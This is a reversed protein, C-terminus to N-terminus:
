VVGEVWQAQPKVFSKVVKVPAGDEAMLRYSGAAAPVVFTEAFHFRQRVGGAEVLVSKGEVLSMVQCSDGTRVEVATSFEYREVDYFHQRHTPQHIVQWGPGGGSVRPRAILEAVAAAGKRAFYLNDFARDINLPRPRGDLDLRMWDYMKFTFIYPTASIELV